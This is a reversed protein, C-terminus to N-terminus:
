VKFNGLFIIEPELMVNYKEYVTKQVHLIITYIDNSSANGSNLIFNAHDKSIEADGVRYGSLGCNQILTWAKANAPNKFISGANKKNKPQSKIRNKKYEDIKHNIEFLNGKKLIMTCDHIFLNKNQKFISDRYSFNAESKKLTHLAGNESVNITNVYNAMEFGYCGANQVLAGGITGPITTLFELGTFEMSSIKKAIYASRASSPIKFTVSQNDKAIIDINEPYNIKIVVGDYGFDSILINSGGGLIFHKENIKLLLKQLLLVKNIDDPMIFLEANGGVKFTNHAKLSHDSYCLIHNLNCFEIVIIKNKEVM